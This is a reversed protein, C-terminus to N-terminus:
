LSIGYFALYERLMDLNDLYSDIKALTKFERDYLIIWGMSRSVSSIERVSFKAARGFRSVVRMQEGNAEVQCVKGIRLYVIGMGMASLATISVAWREALSISSFNIALFLILGILLLFWGIGTFGIRASRKLRLTFQCKLVSIEAPKPASNVEAPIHWEAPAKEIPINQWLLWALLLDAHEMSGAFKALVQYNRNYLVNCGDSPGLVVGAIENASFVRDKKLFSKQRLISGEVTIRSGPAFRSHVSFCLPPIQDPLKEPLLNYSAGGAYSCATHWPAKKWDAYTLLPRRTFFFGTLGLGACLLLLEWTANWLREWDEAALQLPSIGASSLAFIITWLVCTLVTCVAVITYAAPKSRLGHFLRYFWGIVLGVFLQFFISSKILFLSCLLLTLICVLMGVICGSIGYLLSGHPATQDVGYTTKFHDSM